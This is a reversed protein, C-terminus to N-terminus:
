RGEEFAVLQELLPKFAILALTAYHDEVDREGKEPYYARASNEGHDLYMERLSERLEAEKAALIEDSNTEKPPFGEAERIAPKWDAWHNRLMERLELLIPSEDPDEEGAQIWLQEIATRPATGAPALMGLLLALNNLRGLQKAAEIILDEQEPAFETLAAVKLALERIGLESAPRDGRDSQPIESM